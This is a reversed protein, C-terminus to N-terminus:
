KKIKYGKPCVPKIATVKKIVKGKICTITKKKTVAAKEALTKAAADAAVKDALAKAAADAAAKDAAAKDALAKAAADAAENDAIAKAEAAAKTALALAEAKAAKLAPSWSDHCTSEGYYQRMLDIDIDSLPIVGFPASDPDKMVSDLTSTGPIDGLGLINGIESQAAEIFGEKTKIFDPVSSIEITGTVRFNNDLDVTWYGSNNISVYGVKIEATAPDSVRKFSVTDLALDWSTFSLELWGEEEATFEREIDKFNVKTVNTTWTIERNGSSNDWKIGPFYEEFFLPSLDNIPCTDASSETAMPVTLLTFAFAITLAKVTAKRFKM